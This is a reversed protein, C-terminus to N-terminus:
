STGLTIVSDSDPKKMFKSMLKENTLINRPTVRQLYKLVDVNPRRIDSFYIDQYKQIKKDPKYLEIGLAWKYINKIFENNPFGQYFDYLITLTDYNPAYWNPNPPKVFGVEMGGKEIINKEGVIPSSWKVSLGFDGIKALIPTAKTYLETDDITYKYWEKDQLYKGNFKTTDKVDEIFINERHLDGHVIEYKQLCDLAHLIQVLLASITYDIDIGKMELVKPLTSDIVEMFIYQYAKPLGLGKSKPGQFCTAFAFVDLFNISTGKRYINGAIVGIVYEAYTGGFLNTSCLYSNKPIYIMGMGDSKRFAQDKETKCPELRPIHYLGGKKMIRNPNSGNVKIITDYELNYEKSISLALEGLTYNDHPVSKLQGSDIYSKTKKVAYVKDKIGKLKFLFVEGAIGSGLKAASKSDIASCLPSENGLYKVISEGRDIIKLVDRKGYTKIANEFSQKEM